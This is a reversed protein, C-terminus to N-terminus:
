STDMRSPPLRIAHASVAVGGRDQALTVRPEVQENGGARSHTHLCAPNGVYGAQCSQAQLCMHASTRMGPPHSTHAHQHTSYGVNTAGRRPIIHAGQVRTRYSAEEWSRAERHAECGEHRHLPHLSLSFLELAGGPEPATPLYRTQTGPGPRVVMQNTGQGRIALPSPKSM